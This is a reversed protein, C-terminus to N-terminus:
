GKVYSFKEAIRGDRIRYLDVARVHGAGWTYLCRQVIRDDAVITDEVEVHTTPNDFIPTWIKRLDAHGIVREGDPPTGHDPHRPRTERGQDGLQSAGLDDPV